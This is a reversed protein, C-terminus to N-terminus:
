RSIGEIGAALTMREHGCKFASIQGEYTRLMARLLSEGRTIDVIMNGAALWLSRPLTITVGHHLALADHTTVAYCVQEILAQVDQEEAYEFDVSVTLAQSTTQRRM